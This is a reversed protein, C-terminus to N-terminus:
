RLYFDLSLQSLLGLIFTQDLGPDLKGHDISSQENPLKISTKTGSQIQKQLFGGGEGTMMPMMTKMMM